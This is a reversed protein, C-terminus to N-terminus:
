PKLDHSFAPEPNILSQLRAAFRDFTYTAAVRARGREGMEAARAKDTLLTKLAISLLNSDGHPVLMGTVGDQIVDLTGGHAGGIVPKAHAMAELFVFGFGEGASPLAFVDCRAYCGLLEQQSLNTLFLTHKSVGRDQTLQELRHRDQGDGVLILVADPVSQLVKPLACILTDAGKYREAPDWRGVALIIPTTEALASLQSPLTTKDPRTAFEPDLGWPVVRIKEPLIHQQSTLKQATYSSPAIVRDARQLAMRRMWQMPRWVEVGHTFVISHFKRYRRSMLWVVPALHPHLAFVISPQRAAARLAAMLFQSKNRSYGTVVFENSGVRVTHPGQPDNLSLFHYSSGSAVSLNSVVAAVHRGARQVGGVALMETFLGVIM